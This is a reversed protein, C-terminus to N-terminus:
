RVGSVVTGWPRSDSLFDDTGDVLDGVRLQGVLEDVLETSSRWSSEQGTSTRESPRLM